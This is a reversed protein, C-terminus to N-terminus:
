DVCLRRKYSKRRHKSGFCDRMLNWCYDAMMHNDWRGQYGEEMIKFDQHLREVHEESYDGLNTPFCDLHFFLYHIKISMNAGIDRFNLLMNEVLEKHNKAKFNGLFNKVVLVFSNWASFELETVSKVFESDDILQRIQPGDFIGQKLKEHKIRSVKQQHM